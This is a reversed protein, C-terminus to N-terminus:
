KLWQIYLLLLMIVITAGICINTMIAVQQRVSITQREDMAVSGQKISRRIIISRMSLGILGILIISVDAFRLTAAEVDSTFERNYDEIGVILGGAILIWLFVRMVIGGPQRKWFNSPV